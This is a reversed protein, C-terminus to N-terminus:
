GMYKVNGATKQGVAKEEKLLTTLPWVIVYSRSTIETVDHSVNYSLCVVFLDTIM